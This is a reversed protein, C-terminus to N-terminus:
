WGRAYTSKYNDYAGAPDAHTSRDNAFYVAWKREERDQCVLCRYEDCDECTNPEIM